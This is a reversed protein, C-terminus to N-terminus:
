AVGKESGTREKGHILVSNLFLESGDFRAADVGFTIDM